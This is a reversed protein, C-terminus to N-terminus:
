NESLDDLESQSLLHPGKEEDENSFSDHPDSKTKGEDEYASSHEPPKVIPLNNPCHFFTYQSLRIKKQEQCNLIENHRYYM